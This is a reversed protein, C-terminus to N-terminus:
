RSVKAAALAAGALLVGAVIYGAPAYILWSGYAILSGGGLLALDRLLAPVATAARAAAAAAISSLRTALAM